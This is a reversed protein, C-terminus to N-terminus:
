KGFRRDRNAFEKIIKVFEDKTFEPWLTDSFFLESYASQFLLFNSLRKEKGTRIVIDPDPDGNTSLNKRVVMENVDQPRIQGSAIAYAIRKSADVIEQRGGYAIAFNLRFDDYDKTLETAEKISKLLYDPLKDLKGFFRLKIRNKHVFNEKHNIIDDIEKKALAFLFDLENKPRKDMNELSLSYFTITKIGLEKSWEFVNKIKEVGWEHGKSPDKMLRMACRRNGDPIIAIHSPISTM